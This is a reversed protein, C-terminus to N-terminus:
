SGKNPAEKQGAQQGQISVFPALEEFAILDDKFSQLNRIFTFYGLIPHYFRQWKIARVNSALPGFRDQVIACNLLESSGEFSSWNHFFASNDKSYILSITERLSDSKFFSEGKGHLAEWASLTMALILCAQNEHRVPKREIDQLTKTYNPNSFYSMKQFLSVRDPQKFLISPRLDGLEKFSVNSDLSISASNSVADEKASKAKSIREVLKADWKFGNVDWSSLVLWKIFQDPESTLKHRLNWNLVKLDRALEPNRELLSLGSAILHGEKKIKYNDFSDKEFMRSWARSFIRKSDKISLISKGLSEFRARAQDDTASFENFQAVVRKEFAELEEASLDTGGAYAIVLDSLDRLPTQELIANSLELWNDPAFRDFYYRSTRRAMNLVSVPRSNPSSEPELLSWIADWAGPSSLNEIPANSSPPPIAPLILKKSSETLSSSSSSLTKRPELTSVDEIEMAVPVSSSVTSSSSFTQSSVSAIREAQDSSSPSILSIIQTADQPLSLEDESRKRKKSSAIVPEPSLTSSSLPSLPTM